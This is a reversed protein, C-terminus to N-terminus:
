HFKLKLVKVGGVVGIRALDLLLSCCVLKATFLRNFIFVNTLFSLLSSFLVCEPHDQRM